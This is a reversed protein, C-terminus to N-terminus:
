SEKKKEDTVLVWGKKQYHKQYADFRVRAPADATHKLKPHTMHVWDTPKPM